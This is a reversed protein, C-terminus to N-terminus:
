LRTASSADIAPGRGTTRWVELWNIMEAAERNELTGIWPASWFMPLVRESKGVERDPVNVIVQVLSKTESHGLIGMSAPEVLFGVVDAREFRVTRFFQRIEIGDYFAHVAPARIGIVVLLPIGFIPLVYIFTTFAGPPTHFHLVLVLVLIAAAGLIPYANFRWSSRPWFSRLRDQHLEKAM